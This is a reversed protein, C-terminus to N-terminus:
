PVLVIKGHTHRDALDEFAERVASLPYTRAIPLDLRGAAVDEALATLNEIKAGQANGAGQVGREAVAAFDIITNVRQTPIQLEDLALAVYGRGFLDLFATPSLPRLKAALDGDYTLPEAGHERLWAHNPESALAIVGAGTRVALQTALM